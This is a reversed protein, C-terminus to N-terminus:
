HITDYQREKQQYQQILINITDNIEYLRDEMDQIMSPSTTYPLRDELDIKERELQAITEKINM